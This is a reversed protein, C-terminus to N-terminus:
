WIVCLSFLYLLSVNMWVCVCVSVNVCMHVYAFICKLLYNFLHIHLTRWIFKKRIEMESLLFGKKKWIRYIDIVSRKGVEMSGDGEETDTRWRPRWVQVMVRCNQKRGHWIKEATVKDHKCPEACSYASSKARKKPRLDKSNFRSYTIQTSIEAKFFFRSNVSLLLHESLLM